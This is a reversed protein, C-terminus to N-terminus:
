GSSVAFRDDRLVLRASLDHLIGYAISRRDRGGPVGQAVDIVNRQSTEITASMM